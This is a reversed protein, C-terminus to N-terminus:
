TGAGRPNTEDMVSRAADIEVIMVWIFTFDQCDKGSFKYGDM